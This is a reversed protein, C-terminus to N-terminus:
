YQEDNACEELLAPLTRNQMQFRYRPKVEEGWGYPCYGRGTLKNMRRKLYHNTIYNDLLQIEQELLGDVMKVETIIHPKVQLVYRWPENFRYVLCKSKGDKSTKEYLHFHAKELETLKLSHHNWHWESFEQLFQRRVEPGKSRKRSGRRRKKIKFSKDPHYQVTNIKELLTSFFGASPSRKIDDRVVFYRKWGKQYPNELPVMPLDRREQWLIREKKIIQILQKDFDKKQLRKKRRASKLRYQLVDFSQEYNDM